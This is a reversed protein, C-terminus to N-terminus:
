RLRTWLGMGGGQRWHTAAPAEPTGPAQGEPVYCAEGIQCDRWDYLVVVVQVDFRVTQAEDTRYEHKRVIYQRGDDIAQMLTQGLERNLRAWEHAAVDMRAQEVAVRPQMSAHEFLGTHRPPDSREAEPPQVQPTSLIFDQM